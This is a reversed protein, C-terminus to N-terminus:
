MKKIVYTVIGWIILENEETVKIPHYNSNEPMLYLCDTEVQIRKVTFEGDICCIAIKNNQPELSRDVVLVDKDNIGADIMSNGNVRIYFTALPNESLAANLDINTEMFDAAPSPFGASVGDPIFPIKLESEFDPIFFTLKQNKNISM